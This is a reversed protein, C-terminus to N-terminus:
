KGGNKLHFALGMQARDTKMQRQCETSWFARPDNIKLNDYFAKNRVPTRLVEAVHAREADQRAQHQNFKVEEKYADRAARIKFKETGNKANLLMAQWDPEGNDPQKHFHSAARTLPDRNDTKPAPAPEPATFISGEAEPQPFATVPLGNEDFQLYNNKM